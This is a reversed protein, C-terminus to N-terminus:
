NTSETLKLAGYHAAGLLGLSETRALRIAIADLEQAKTTGGVFEELFHRNDVLFPNKSAVGGSVFLTDVVPLLSLCYNRCQRAYFRSFWRCTSLCKSWGGEVFRFEHWCIAQRLLWLFDSCLQAPRWRSASGCPM